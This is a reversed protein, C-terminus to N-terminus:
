HHTPAPGDPDGEEDAILADLASLLTEKEDFGLSDYISIEEEIHQVAKGYGRDLATQIAGLRVREDDSKTLALLADVLEDGHLQIAARIEATARNPTGRQRGGTKQGKAM